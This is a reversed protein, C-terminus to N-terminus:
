TPWLSRLPEPLTMKVKEIEGADLEKALLDFVAKTTGVADRPFKPPLEGAVRDAFDQVTRDRTPNDALHWGEYYIGRVFTPLQAGLHTAQEATLRDRLAHMVARLASYAHHRTGFHHEDTLTKLWLNTQQIAHDLVPLNADSVNAEMSQLLVVIDHRATQANVRILASEM